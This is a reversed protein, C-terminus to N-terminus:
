FEVEGKRMIKLQVLTITMTFFLLILVMASSYGFMNYEFAREVANVAVTQIYGPVMVKFFDYQKLGYILANVTNITIAPRLLPVTIYWVKKIGTIGDIAAAEYVDEPITKLNAIYVTTYFGFAAWSIVGSVMLVARLETKFFNIGTISFAQLITNIVGGDTQTMYSWIFSCVVPSLIAPIFVLAKATNFFRGPKDILLAVIISFVNLVVTVYVTNIFTTKLSSLFADDHVLRIFNKLGVIKFHPSIGNWNTISFFFCMALPVIVFLLFISLGPLLFLADERRLKNSDM